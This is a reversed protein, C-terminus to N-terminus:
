YLKKNLNKVIHSAAYEEWTVAQMREESAKREREEQENHFYAEQREVVFDKLADLIAMPDIAGYVKGYRAQKFRVLFLMIESVKLWGYRHVISGACQEMQRNTMKVRCGCYESLDFLQVSLWKIATNWSYGQNLEILTPYRDSFFCQHVNSAMALQM